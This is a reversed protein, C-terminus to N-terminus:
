LNDYFLYKDLYVYIIVVNLLIIEARSIICSNLNKIVYKM